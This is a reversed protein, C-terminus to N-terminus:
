FPQLSCKKIFPMQVANAHQRNYLPCEYQYRIESHPFRM